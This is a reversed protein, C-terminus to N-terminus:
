ILLPILADLNIKNEELPRLSRNQLATGLKRFDFIENFKFYSNRIMKLLENKDIFDEFDIVYSDEGVYNLITEDELVFRCTYRCAIGKKESNRKRMVDLTIFNQIEELPTAAVPEHYHWDTVIMETQEIMKHKNYGPM